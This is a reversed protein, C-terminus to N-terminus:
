TCASAAFKCTLTHADPHRRLPVGVQAGRRAAAEAALAAQTATLQQRATDRAAEADDRRPGSPPLFSSTCSCFILVHLALHGSAVKGGTGGRCGKSGECVGMNGGAVASGGGGVGVRSGAVVAVSCAGVRVWRQAKMEAVMRRARDRLGSIASELQRM